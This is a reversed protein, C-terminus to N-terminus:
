LSMDRTFSPYLITGQPLPLCGWNPKPTQDRYKTKIRPAAIAAPPVTPVARASKRYRWKDFVHLQDQTEYILCCSLFSGIIGSGGAVLIKM